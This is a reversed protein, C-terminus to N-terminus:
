SVGLLQITYNGTSVTKLVPRVWTFPGTLRLVDLSEASATASISTSGEVAWPGASSLATQLQVSNTTAITSAKVYLAAMSHFGDLQIATNWGSTSGTSLWTHKVELM